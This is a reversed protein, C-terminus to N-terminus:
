KIFPRVPYKKEGLPATFFQQTVLPAAFRYLKPAATGHLWTNCLALCCHLFIVIYSGTYSYLLVGAIFLLFVIVILHSFNLLYYVM